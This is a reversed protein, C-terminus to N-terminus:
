QAGMKKCKDVIAYVPPTKTASQPTSSEQPSQINAHEIKAGSVVNEHPSFSDIISGMEGMDVDEYESCHSQDKM